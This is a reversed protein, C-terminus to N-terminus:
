KIEEPLDKETYLAIGNQSLLRATLGM